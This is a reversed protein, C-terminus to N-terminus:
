GFSADLGRVADLWRLFADAAAEGKQQHEVFGVARAMADPKVRALILAEMGLQEGMPSGSWVHVFVQAEFRYRDADSWQNAEGVGRVFGWLWGHTRPNVVRPALSGKLGAREFSRNLFGIAEDAARAPDM